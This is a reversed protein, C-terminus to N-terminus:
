FLQVEGREDDAVEGHDFVSQATLPALQERSL